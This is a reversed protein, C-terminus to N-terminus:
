GNTYTDVTYLVCGLCCERERTDHLRLQLHVDMTSVHKNNLFMPLFNEMIFDYEGTHWFIILYILYNKLYLSFNKEM